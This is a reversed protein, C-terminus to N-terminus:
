FYPLSRSRGKDESNYSDIVCQELDFDTEQETDLHCVLYQEKPSDFTIQASEEVFVRSVTEVSYFLVLLYEFVFPNVIV